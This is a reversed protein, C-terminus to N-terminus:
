NFVANKATIIKLYIRSFFLVSEALNEYDSILNQEYQLYSTDNQTLLAIVDFPVLSNLKM